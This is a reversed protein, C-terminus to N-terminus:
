GVGWYMASLVSAYLSWVVYPLWLGFAWFSGGTRDQLALEVLVWLASGFIGLAVLFAWVYLPRGGSFVPVWIKNLLLNLAIAVMIRNLLEPTDGPNEVGSWYLFIAAVMFVYLVYWVVGFLYPPPAFFWGFRRRIMRVSKLYRIRVARTTRARFGPQWLVIVTWAFLGLWELESLAM